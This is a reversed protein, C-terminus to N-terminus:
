KKVEVVMADKYGASRLKKLQADANEKKSFAGVQVRYITGSTTQTTTKPTSAAAWNPRFFSHVTSDNLYRTKRKYTSTAAWDSGTRNLLLIFRNMIM